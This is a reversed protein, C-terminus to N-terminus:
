QLQALSLPTGGFDSRCMLGHLSTDDVNVSSLAAYTNYGYPSRPPLYVYSSQWAQICTKDNKRLTEVNQKADEASSTSM